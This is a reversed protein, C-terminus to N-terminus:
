EMERKKMEMRDMNLEESKSDAKWENKREENNTLKKM